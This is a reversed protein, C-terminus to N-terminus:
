DTEEEQEEEEEEEDPEVEGVKSSVCKGFANRGKGEAAKPDNTGWDERFRDEDMERLARCEQAANRLEEQVEPATARICNRMAPKDWLAKFDAKDDKKDAACQKAALGKAKGNGNGALAGAAPLAAVAACALVITFARKM